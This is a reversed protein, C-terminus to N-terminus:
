KEVERKRQEALYIAELLKVANDIDDNYIFYDYTKAKDIEAKAASLRKKIKEESETKRNRLRAELNELSPPAIFVTVFDFKNNKLAKEKGGVTLAFIPDKGLDVAEIYNRKPTGYYNDAFHDYEIFEGNEVLRKFNEKTMFFYDVGHQEKGRRQRTTASVSVEIEEPHKQALKEILTTKGVGSPGSIIIGFNEYKTKALASNEVLVSCLLVSSFLVVKGVSRM